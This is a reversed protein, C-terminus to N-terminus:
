KALRREAALVGDSRMADAHRQFDAESRFPRFRNKVEWEIRPAGGARPEARAAQGCCSFVLLVAVLFVPLM